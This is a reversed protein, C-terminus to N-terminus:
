ISLVASSVYMKGNNAMQCFYATFVKYVDFQEKRLANGYETARCSCNGAHTSLTVTDPFETKRSVM